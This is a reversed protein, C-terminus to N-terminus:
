GQDATEETDSKKEMQGNYVRSLTMNIEPLVFCHGLLVRPNKIFGDGKTNRNAQKIEEQWDEYGCVWVLGPPDENDLATAAGVSNM